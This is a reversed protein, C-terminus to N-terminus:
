PSERWEEAYVLRYAEALYTVRRIYSYTEPIPVMETFRYRDPTRRWWRRVRTEGANYAALAPEVAGFKRLLRSLERAGIRINVEPDKLDPRNGLGMARSHGRATSPLLQMVGLAGRPSRAHAVFASEQRALGALLWPDVDSLEAATRIASVWELPLYARVGNGPARDMAVTGLEPIAARLARIADMRRGRREALEAEALGEAPWTGRQFRIRRWQAAAESLAGRDMLWAVADPPSAPSVADSLRVAEPPTQDLIEQAWRSYLDPVAVSALAALRRDRDPAGLAAWFGLCREHDPLSSALRLVTAQDGTRRAVGVGLRRGLWQRRDDQWGLGELLWWSELAEDLRGAETGCEVTLRLAAIRLDRDGGAADIARAASEVCSSFGSSATARPYRQWGRRRYADGRVVAAEVDDSGLGRLTAIARGPNGSVVECRALEIRRSREIEGRWRQRRLEAAARAAGGVERWASSRQLLLEPSLDAVAQAELEPAERRLRHPSFVALRLAAELRWPGDGIRVLEQDAARRAHDPAGELFAVAEVTRGDAALARALGILARIELDQPMPAEAAERWESVSASAEELAALWGELRVRELTPGPGAAAFLRAAAEPNSERVALGQDLRSLREEQVVTEPLRPEEVCAVAM